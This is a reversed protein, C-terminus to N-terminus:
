ARPRDVATRSVPAAQTAGPPAGRDLVDLARLWVECALASDLAILPAASPHPGLVADRLAGPDVLGLRALVPEDFLDILEARHRRLGAHVDAGFVDKTTRGLIADPVIGRMAEALLPKYRWPTGREQMRVALCVEIVRDDLYPVALRMGARAMVRGAQRAARGASGLYQLVEHQGRERALPEATRAAQHLLSRAADVAQRTMWPPPRVAPGWGLLSARRSPVPDALNDASAALWEAYSCNSWLASLTAALPWRRLARQGRLHHVAIRPHTRILTHLYSNPASFVEDGGHGALHLRSGRRALLRALYTLRAQTRVWRYPEEADGSAENLDAYMSPLEDHGFVLHETGELQTRAHEAWLPDDSGPDIQGWTATVLDAGRGAALFCLATSDMGGSLDASVTGGARTRAEVATTLAQRVAPVAEVLPVVPEPPRWWRAARSSGDADILLCCDAPVTQVGQWPCADALPHPVSPSLLRVALWPEDVGAGTLVALLDARDAAVTVGAMRTHFVRRVGSASGQVRVQGGMSSVLHVSGPLKGALRGLDGLERVRRVTPLLDAASVPCCGVVAVRTWGAAVVTMNEASWKGLLWPRGSAHRVIQPDYPRLAEAAALAADGDPLIAFWSEGHRHTTVM